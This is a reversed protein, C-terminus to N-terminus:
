KEELGLELLTYTKDLKMGKYMTNPEFYPFSMGCDNTICFHIYQKKNWERKEIGIVINRFPRIIHSLYEKEEETLLEKKEEVVEYKPREIKIIRDKDSHQKALQSNHIIEVFGNEFTVRDGVQIDM